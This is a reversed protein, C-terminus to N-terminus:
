RPFNNPRLLFNEHYLFKNVRLNSIARQDLVLGVAVAASDLTDRLDPATESASSGRQRKGLCVLAKLVADGDGTFRHPVDSGRVIQFDYELFGSYFNGADVAVGNKAVLRASRIFGGASTFATAPNTGLAEGTVRQNTVGCNRPITAHLLRLAHLSAVCFLLARGWGDFGELARRLKAVAITLRM